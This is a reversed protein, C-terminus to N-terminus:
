MDDASTKNRYRQADDPRNTQEYLQVLAAAAERASASDSGAETDSSLQNWASLLLPEAEEHQGTALLCQGLNLETWAIKAPADAREIRETRIGQLLSIAQMYKGTRLQIRAKMELSDSLQYHGGELVDRRIDYAEDALTEADEFEDMQLRISALAQKGNAIQLRNGADANRVTQSEAELRRLGAEKIRLSSEIFNGAEELNGLRYHCMGINHQLRGVRWDDEDGDSQDTLLSASQSYFDIAEEPRTKSLLLGLGNLVSGRSGQLRAQEAPPADTLLRDYSQLAHRMKREADEPLGLHRYTSGLHHLSDAIDHHPDVLQRQRIDLADQFFTKAQEWRAQKYAVRGLNHLARASEVSSVREEESLSFYAQELHKQALDYRDFGIFSEGLDNYIRSSIDPDDGLDAQVVDSWALLMDVATTATSGRQVNEPDASAIVNSAMGLTGALRQNALTVNAYLVSMTIAVAIILLVFGAALGVGIRHRQVFKRMVYMTDDRRAVIPEHAL